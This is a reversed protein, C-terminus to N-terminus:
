RNVLSSTTFTPSNTGVNSGNVQWQYSPSSGGNIPTATYTVSNGPLDNYCKCWYYGFSHDTCKVTMTIQNSTVSASSPCTVSSTMIVTVKDTNVLTSSTFTPSNTGANVGNVQWQYTPTAGPNIPTATFTVPTGACINNGPNAAITVSPVITPNVTISFPCSNSCSNGDTYTYTITHTGVGATAPNFNGSSVGPGSYTGGAPLGGTLAYSATNVCTSSNAPCSVTPTPNITITMQDSVPTCPGTPDNTTLTLTVNGATIEAASPTYVANLANANPNFSGGGGSWVGSSAGGGVVGALTVNPSSACVSKNLGADATCSAFVTLNRVLSSTQQCSPPNGPNNNPQSM